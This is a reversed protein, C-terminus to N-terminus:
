LLADDAQRFSDDGSDEDGDRWSTRATARYVIVPGYTTRFVEAILEGGRATHLELIRFRKRSKSNNMLVTVATTIEQHNLLFTKPNMWNDDSM